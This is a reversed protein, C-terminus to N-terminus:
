RGTLTVDINKGKEEKAKGEDTLEVDRRNETSHIHDDSYGGGENGEGDVEQDNLKEDVHSVRTLHMHRAKPRVPAEGSNENLAHSHLQMKFHGWASNEHDPLDRATGRSKESSHPHDM